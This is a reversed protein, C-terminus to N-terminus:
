CNLGRLTQSSCTFSLNVFAGIARDRIRLVYQRCLEHSSASDDRTDAILYISKYMLSNSPGALQFVTQLHIALSNPSGTEFASTFVVDCITTSCDM